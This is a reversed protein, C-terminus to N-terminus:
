NLWLRMGSEFRGATQIRMLLGVGHTAGLLVLPPAAAMTAAIVPNAAALVAHVINAPISAVSAAILMQRFFRVAGKAHSRNHPM